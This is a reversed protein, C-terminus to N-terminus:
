ETPCAHYMLLCVTLAPLCPCPRRALPGSPRSHLPPPQVWAHEGRGAACLLAGEKCNRGGVRLVRDELVARWAGSSLGRATPHVCSRLCTPRWRAARPLRGQLCPPPPCPHTSNWPAACPVTLHSPNFCRAPADLAPCTHLPLPSYSPLCLIHFMSHPLMVWALASATRRPTRSAPRSYQTCAHLLLLACALAFESATRRARFGPPFMHKENHFAPHLWEVEGLELVACPPAHLTALRTSSLCVRQVGRLDM